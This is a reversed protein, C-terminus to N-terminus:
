RERRRGASLAERYLRVLTRYSAPYAVDVTPAEDELPNGGPPEAGRPLVRWLRENVELTGAEVRASESRSGAGPAGSAGQQEGRMRSAALSLARGAARQARQAAEAQGSRLAEAAQQAAEEARSAVALDSSAGAGSREVEAIGDLAAVRLARLTAVFERSVEEVRALPAEAAEFDDGTGGAATPEAWALLQHAASQAGSALGHEASRLENSQPALPPLAASLPERVARSREALERAHGLQAVCRRSFEERAGELNGAAVTLRLLSDGYVGGDKELVLLEAVLDMLEKLSVFRSAVEEAIEDVEKQLEARDAADSGGDDSSGLLQEFLREANAQRALLEDLAVADESPGVGEDGQDVTGDTLTAGLQQRLWERAEEVGTVAAAATDLVAVADGLARAASAAVAGLNAGDTSRANPARALRDAATELDEVLVVVERAARRVGESLAGERARGLTQATAELSGVIERQLRVARRLDRHGYGHPLDRALDRVLEAAHGVRSASAGLVQPARVSLYVEGLRALFLGDGAAGHGVAGRRALIRRSREALVERLAVLDFIGDMDPRYRQELESIDETVELLPWEFYGEIPVPVPVTADDGEAALRDSLRQLDSSFRGSGLTGPREGFADFLRQLTREEVELLARARLAHRRVVKAEGGRVVADLEPVVQELLAHAVRSEADRESGVVGEPGVRAVSKGVLAGVRVTERRLVEGLGRWSEAGEDEAAVASLRRCGVLLSLVQEYVEEVEEQDLQTAVASSVVRLEEFVRDSQAVCDKVADDPLAGKQGLRRELELVTTVALRRLRRGLALLEIRDRSPIRVSYGVDSLRQGLDYLATRGAAVLAERLAPATEQVRAGLASWLSSLRNSETAVGRLAELWQYGEPPPPAHRLYLHRRGTVGTQGLADLAELYFPATEGAGLGLEAVPIRLGGGLRHGTLGYEGGGAEDAGDAAAGGLFAFRRTAGGEVVLTVQSVHVDDEALFEIELFDDEDLRVTPNRPRVLEVQPARDPRALVLLEEAWDNTVGDVGELLLRLTGSRQLELEPSRARQGEVQWRLAADQDQRSWVRGLEESAELEIEVVTGVLAVIQRSPAETQRLARGAYGPARYNVRYSRVQAPDRVNVRYTASQFDGAAVRYEFSAGLRELAFTHAHQGDSRVDLQRKLRWAEGGERVWLEVAGPRGEQVTAEIELSAGRAISVHGPEVGLRVSSPRPLDATPAVFRRWLLLSANAHTGVVVAGAVLCGVGLLAAGRVGSQAPFGALPLRCLREAALNELDVQLDPSCEAGNAREHQLAIATTLSEELEPHQAELARALDLAGFPRALWLVRWLIVALLTLLAAGTVLLRATSSLVAWRDLLLAGGLIVVVCCAIIGAGKVLRLVYVRRRFPSLGDRLAPSLPDSM